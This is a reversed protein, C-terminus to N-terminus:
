LLLVTTELSSLAGGEAVAVAATDIALAFYEGEKHKDLM